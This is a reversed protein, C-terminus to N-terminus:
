NSDCVGPTDVVYITEGKANANKKPYFGPIKTISHVGGMIKFMLRGNYNILRDKKTHYTGLDEDCEVSGRDALAQCFTSKGAGTLGVCICVDKDRLENIAVQYRYLHKAILAM